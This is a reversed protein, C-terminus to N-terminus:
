QINRLILLESNEFKKTSSINKYNIKPANIGKQFTKKGTFIRAEDWLNTDIFNQLLKAGGEIIVSQIQHQYLHTLQEQLENPSQNIKIYEINDIQKNIKYNFIITKSSKNFIDFNKDLQLNRDTVIRLPNQGFWQRATLKPNDKLVTNKGVWIAQEESRWKHVLTRETLGTIWYPQIEQNKTRIIDIFGDKSQAWKLIIYPRKKEHFTFFRKNIERAQNELVGTTVKIGAQQMIKIGKGSVKDTTDITGIIVKPIKLEAIKKSCPPTKGYHSCPELNVYLTSEKLLEKNKVSNIANIEAHAEGAQTHFGEGIIKGNHVIVSGVLPNPYTNGLANKALKICRSMFYADQEM